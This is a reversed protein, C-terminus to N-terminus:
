AMKSLKAKATEKLIVTAVYSNTHQTERRTKGRKGQSSLRSDCSALLSALLSFLFMGLSSSSSPHHANYANHKLVGM